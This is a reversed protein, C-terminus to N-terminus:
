MDSNSTDVTCAEVVIAGSLTQTKGPPFTYTFILDGTGLASNGAVSISLDLETDTSSNKISATVGTLSTARTVSPYAPLV